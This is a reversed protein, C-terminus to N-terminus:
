HFKSTFYIEESKDHVGLGDRWKYNLLMVEDHGEETFILVELDRDKELRLNSYNGILHYGTSQEVFLSIDNAVAPGENHIVIREEGKCITKSRSIKINAKQSELKENEIKNLEHEKLKKDYKNFEKRTYFFTVLSLILSAVSILIEM